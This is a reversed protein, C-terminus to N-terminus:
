RRGARRCSGEARVEKAETVRDALGLLEQRGLLARLRPFLDEEEAAFHERLEYILAAARKLFGVGSPALTVMEALLENVEQHEAMRDVTDQETAPAAARFAAFVVEDEAAEHAAIEAVIELCLRQMEAPREESDLHELLATMRRHDELLMDIADLRPAMGYMSEYVVPARMAGLM